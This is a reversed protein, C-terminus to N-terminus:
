ERSPFIGNYAIIYNISLYLPTPAFPVGNGTTQVAMTAATAGSAGSVAASQGTTGPFDANQGTTQVAMQQSHGTSYAGGQGLYEGQPTQDNGSINDCLPSYPHTHPPVDFGHTHPPISVSHTHAPSTALHTHSPLNAISLNIQESGGVQGLNYIQGSPSLGVGIVVRGQLNPLQFNSTGNGGYFTGIIAFLAQYSAIPLTQGQCLFWGV